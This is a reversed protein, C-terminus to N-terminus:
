YVDRQYRKAKKLGQVYENAFEIGKGSQEAIIQHLAEDVSKAMHKQDGCVYFHAGRELWAFVEAAQGQLRDQVYIKESQDRSFALDIRTLLGSKHWNQWDTQYLFDSSFHPNGFFLWNDGSAGIAERHQLFSRFPAVGTGPGVMIIPADDNEPLKFNRNPEVFVRISSEDNVETLFRSAAGFRNVDDRTESVLGVTLHVEDDVAEMSSAISYLRPTIARLQDVLEQASWSHSTTALLEVVQHRRIFELLESREGAVLQQLGDNDAALYEVFGPHLQTLERHITLAQQLSLSKGDLDVQEDANLGTVQLVEAVLEPGNEPWVGLADGPAYQLGSDALSIEVHQVTKGSDRGTIKFGDLVEAVYPTFKSWQSVHESASSVVSLKPRSSETNAQFSQATKKWSETWQSSQQQYDVDADLRAHLREAGLESFREDFEKGTQCFKEYSSDGLGLVSYKLQNLKPAKKGFLFEHFALADDPPDGEGQTSIVLAVYQEKALNRPNYDALSKLQASFGEGSLQAFLQEAIGAANGTQSGYLITVVSQSSAENAPALQGSEGHYGPLKNVALGALYGSLWNLQDASLENVANRISEVQDTALPGSLTSLAKSAM